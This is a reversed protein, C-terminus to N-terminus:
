TTEIAPEDTHGLTDRLHTAIIRYGREADERTTMITYGHDLGALDVHDRLAGANRLANAYRIGEDRLRDVECTIVLAPAIGAIGESNPGWSPSALRHRRQTMEPVYATDFVEGLWPSIVARKRGAHKDKAPTVLDLPPYHLVQIAITPADQELALRAAGAALAGGASQGGVGVRSGDWEHDSESAWLTVDYAQEVPVPFRVGPSVDYDVNLVFVGANEALYRCLPDDQEPARIVFGGGHLNVYVGAPSTGTRQTPRYLTCAVDGHRTPIRLPESRGPIEDFRLEEKLRPRAHGMARAITDAIWPTTLISM